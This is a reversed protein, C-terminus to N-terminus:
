ILMLIGCFVFVTWMFPYLYIITILYTFFFVLLSLYITTETPKAQQFSVVSVKHYFYRLVHKSVTEFCPM